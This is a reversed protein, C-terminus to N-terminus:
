HRSSSSSKGSRMPVPLRSGSSAVPYNAQQAGTARVPIMSGSRSRNSSHHQKNILGAVRPPRNESNSSSGSRDGSQSEMEMKRIRARVNGVEAPLCEGGVSLAGLKVLHQNNSMTPGANGNSGATKRESAKHKTITTSGTLKILPQQQQQQRENSSQTGLVVSGLEAERPSFSSADSHTAPPKSPVGALKAQQQQLQTDLTQNINHYEFESSVSILSLADEPFRATSGGTAYGALTNDRDLSDFLHSHAALYAAATSNAAAQPSTLIITSATTPMMHIAHQPPSDPSANVVQPPPPQKTNNNNNNVVVAPPASTATPPQREESPPIPSFTTSFALFYSDDLRSSSRRRGRGNEAGDGAADGSNTKAADQNPMNYNNHNNKNSRSILRTRSSGRGEEVGNFGRSSAPAASTLPESAVTAVVPELLLDTEDQRSQCGSITRGGSLERLCESVGGGVNSSAKPQNHNAPLRSVIDRSQRDVFLEQEAGAELPDVEIISNMKDLLERVSKINGIITDSKNTADRNDCEKIAKSSPLYAGGAQQKPAGFIQKGSNINGDNNSNNNNNDIQTPPQTHQRSKVASEKEESTQRPSASHCNTSSSASFQGAEECRPRRDCLQKDKHGNTNLADESSSDELRKNRTRRNNNNNNNSARLESSSQGSALMPNTKPRELSFRSASNQRREDALCYNYYLGGKRCFIVEEGGAQEPRGIEGAAAAAGNKNNATDCSKKILSDITNADPSDEGDEDNDNDGIRLLVSSKGKRDGIKRRRNEEEISQAGTARAGSNARGNEDAAAAAANNEADFQRQQQLRQREFQQCVSTYNDHNFKRILTSLSSTPSMRGSDDGGGAGLQNLGGSRLAAERSASAAAGRKGAGGGGVLKRRRRRRKKKCGLRCTAATTTSDGSDPSSGALWYGASNTLRQHGSKSTTTTTTKASAVRSGRGLRLLRRAVGSLLAEGSRDTTKAQSISLRQQQFQHEATPPEGFWDAASKAAGASPYPPGTASSPRPAGGAVPCLFMFDPYSASPGLM